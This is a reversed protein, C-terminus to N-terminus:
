KTSINSDVQHNFGRNNSDIQHFFNSDAQRLVELEYYHGGKHLPTIQARGEINEEILLLFKM